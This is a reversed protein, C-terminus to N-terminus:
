RALVVGGWGCSSTRCSAMTVELRYAATRWPTVTMMPVDDAAVDSDVLTGGADYLRFDLDSCDHDCKGVIQYTRGAELWLTTPRRGGAEIVDYLAPRADTYGQDRFRRIIPSAALQRRVQGAAGGETSPAPRPNENIVPTLSTRRGDNAALVVAGWGCSPTACSALSVELRFTATRWPTVTVIPTDDDAVDSAIQNGAEDFLRFDLDSCDNDCKGVVRYSRGASLTLRLSRRSGRDALEYFPGHTVAYGPDNITPSNSIQQAVQARWSSQARAVAPAAAAVLAAALSAAYAAGSALRHHVAPAQPCPQQHTRM